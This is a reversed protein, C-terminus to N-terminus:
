SHHIPTTKVNPNSASFSAKHMPLSSSIGPCFDTLSKVLILYSCEETQGQLGFVKTVNTHFLLWNKKEYQFVETETWEFSFCLFFPSLSLICVM